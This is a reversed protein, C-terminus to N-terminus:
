WEAHSTAVFLTLRRQPNQRQHRATQVHEVGRGVDGDGADDVVLHVRVDALDAVLYPGDDGSGDDDRLGGDLTEHDVKAVLLLVVEQLVDDSGVGHFVLVVHLPGEFTALEAVDRAREGAGGPQAQAHGGGLEHLHHGSSRHVLHGQADSAVADGAALAHVVDQAVAVQPLAVEGGDDDVVQVTAELVEHHGGRLKAM